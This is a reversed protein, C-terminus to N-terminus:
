LIEEYKPPIERDFEEDNNNSYIDTNSNTNQMSCRDFMNKLSIGLALVGFVVIFSIPEM